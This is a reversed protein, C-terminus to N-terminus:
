FTGRVGVTYVTGDAEAYLFRNPYVSYDYLHSQTLNTGTVFLSLHNNLKYSASLDLEGYSTRNEPQAGSGYAISELYKGRWNYALRVQWPGKEYYGSLNASDGIGPVAFKGSTSITGPSLSASSNVHTYNFAMGLGDFPAPLLHAFQYNFTLEEGYINASNLNIPESLSWTQGLFEVPTSVITSFNSVKKYFGEIALYSVDNMYWELGM